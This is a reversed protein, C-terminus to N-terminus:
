QYYPRVEITWENSDSDWKRIIGDECLVRLREALSPLDLDPINMSPIGHLTREPIYETYSLVKIIKFDNMGENM